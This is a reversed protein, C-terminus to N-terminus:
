DDPWTFQVGDSEGTLHVARGGVVLHMDHGVQQPGALNPLLGSYSNNRFRNPDTERRWEGEANKFTRLGVNKGHLLIGRASSKSEGDFVFRNGEVLIGRTYDRIRLGNHWWAFRPASPAILRFFNDRIVFAKGDNV